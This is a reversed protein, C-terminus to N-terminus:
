ARWTRAHVLRVKKKETPDLPWLSTPLPPVKTTFKQSAGGTRARQRHRRVKVRTNCRPSCFLQKQNTPRVFFMGDCGQCRRPEEDGRTAQQWLTLYLVDVLCRPQLRSELGDGEEVLALGARLQRGELIGNLEAAFAAWHLSPWASAAPRKLVRGKLKRRVDDRTPLARDRWRGEKLASLWHALSQVRGLEHRTRFVSDYLQVEAKPDALGLLGYHNVFALLDTDSHVDLGTASAFIEGAERIPDYEKVPIVDAARNYNEAAFVGDGGQQYRRLEAPVPTKELSVRFVRLRWGGLGIVHRM